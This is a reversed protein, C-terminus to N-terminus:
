RSPTGCCSTSIEWRQMSLSVLLLRCIGCTSQFSLPDTWTNIARLFCPPMVVAPDGQAQAGRVRHHLQLFSGGRPASKCFGSSANATPAAIHCLEACSERGVGQDGLSMDGDTQSGLIASGTWPAARSQCRRKPAPDPRAPPM